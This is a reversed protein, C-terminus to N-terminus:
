SLQLQFCFVSQENHESNLFYHTIVYKTGNYRYEKARIKSEIDSRM